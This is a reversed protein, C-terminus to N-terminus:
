AHSKLPAAALRPAQGLRRTVARRKQGRRYMRGDAMEFLAAASMTEAEHPPATAYGVSVTVWLPCRPHEM